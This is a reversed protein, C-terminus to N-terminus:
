TRQQRRVRRTGQASQGPLYRQRAQGHPGGATTNTQPLPLPRAARLVGIPVGGDKNQLDSADASSPRTLPAISSVVGGTGPALFSTTRTTNVDQPSLGDRALVAALPALDASSLQIRPKVQPPDSGPEFAGTLDSGPLDAPRTLWHPNGPAYQGYYRSGQMGAGLDPPLDRGTIVSKFYDGVLIGQTCPCAASYHMIGRQFRQYIFQSNNPDPTPKSTPLGWIELNLLTVLGPNPVGGPFALDVPM